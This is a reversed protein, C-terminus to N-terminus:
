ILSMYLATSVLISIMPNRWVLQLGVALAGALYPAATRWELSTYSWVILAFIIIPSFYESTRKVAGPLERGSGFLLFPTARLLYTIIAVAVIQAAVHLLDVTM